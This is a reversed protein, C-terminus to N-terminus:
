LIHDPESHFSRNAEWSVSKKENYLKYNRKFCEFVM